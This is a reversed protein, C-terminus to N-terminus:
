QASSETVVLNRSLTQLVLQFLINHLHLATKIGNLGQSDVLLYFTNSQYQFCLSNPSTDAAGMLEWKNLSKLARVVM